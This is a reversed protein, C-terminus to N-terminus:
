NVVDSVYTGGGWNSDGGNGVNAFSGDSLFASWTSSVNEQLQMINYTSGTQYPLGWEIKYIGNSLAFNTNSTVTLDGSAMNNFRSNWTSVANGYATNSTSRFVAQNQVNGVTTSLSVWKLGVGDWYYYGPVVQFPSSGATVTNFVMLGNAPNTVPSASNTATLAVRPPLFGKNSSSVDLKASADPTTTGIGTQAFVQVSFLVLLFLLFKRVM